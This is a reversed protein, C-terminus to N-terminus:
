RAHPRARPVRGAASRCRRPECASRGPFSASHCDLRRPMLFDNTVGLVLVLMLALHMRVIVPVHRMVVLAARDALELMAGRVVLVLVVVGYEYVRVLITGLFLFLGVVIRLCVHVVV